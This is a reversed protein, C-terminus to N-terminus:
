VEYLCDDLFLQTYYKGDKQTVSRITITITPFYFIKNLLINDNTSIKIKMYNDDYKIPYSYDNITKIIEEIGDFVEQYKEMIDGNESSIILYKDGDVEEFHGKIKNSMLYLPNVSSINYQPKKTIYGIYYVDNSLVDKKDLKLNNSIFNKINILDDYFNYTRGEINLQRITM